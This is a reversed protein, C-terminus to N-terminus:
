LLVDFCFQVIHVVVRQHWGRAANGAGPPLENIGAGPPMPLHAGAAKAGAAPDNAAAGATPNSAAPAGAVVAAAKFAHSKNHTVLTFTCLLVISVAGM